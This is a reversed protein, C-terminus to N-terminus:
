WVKCLIEGGMRARRAEIGSMVGRSTSVISLGLGGMIPPIERHGAYVRKGPRSIMALGSIFPRGEGDYRLAVRITRKPGRELVEVDGVYGERKLIQVMALKLGSHPMEVRGHGAQLANRIRTLMDAIPDNM